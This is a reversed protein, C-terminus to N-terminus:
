RSADEVAAKAILEQISIGREQAAGWLFEIDSMNFTVTVDCGRDGHSSAAEASLPLQVIDVHTQITM